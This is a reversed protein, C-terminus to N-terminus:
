KLEDIIKYLLKISYEKEFKFRTKCYHYVINEVYTEIEDEEYMDLINEVYEKLQKHQEKTIEM